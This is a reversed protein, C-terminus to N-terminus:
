DQQKVCMASKAKPEVKQEKLHMLSSDAQLRMLAASIHVYMCSCSESDVICNLSKQHEGEQDVSVPTNPILQIASYM